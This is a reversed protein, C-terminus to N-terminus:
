ATLDRKKQEYEDRQLEGRAYRDQLIQLPTRGGKSQDILWRILVIAGIIIVAWFLIMFLGGFGMGWGWGGM